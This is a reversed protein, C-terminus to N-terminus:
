QCASVVGSDLHLYLNLNACHSFTTMECVYSCFRNLAFKFFSLRNAQAKKINYIRMKLLM